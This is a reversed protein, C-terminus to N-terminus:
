HDAPHDRTPPIGERLLRRHRILWWYRISCMIAAFIVSHAQPLRNGSESTIHIGYTITAYLALGVGVMIVSTKEVQHRGVLATPLGILSGILIMATVIYMAYEGATGEFSSPRNTISTSWGIILSIYAACMLLTLAQPYYIRMWVKSTWGAKRRIHRQTM